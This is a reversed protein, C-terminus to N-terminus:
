TVKSLIESVLVHRGDPKVLVALLPSPGSSKGNYSIIVIIDRRDLHLSRIELVVLDGSGARLFM